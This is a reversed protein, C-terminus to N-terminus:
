KIKKKMIDKKELCDNLVEMYTIKLVSFESILKDYKKQLEYYQERDKKMVELIGNYRAHHFEESTM